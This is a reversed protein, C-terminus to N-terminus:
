NSVDNLLIFPAFKVGGEWNLPGSQCVSAALGPVILASRYESARDGMVM